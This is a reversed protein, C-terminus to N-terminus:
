ARKLDQVWGKRRALRELDALAEEVTDRYEFGEIPSWIKRRMNIEKAVIYTKVGSGDIGSAVIYRNGYADKYISM